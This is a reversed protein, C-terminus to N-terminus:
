WLNSSQTGCGSASTPVDDTSGATSTVASTYPLTISTANACNDNAPIVPCTKIYSMRTASTLAVCSFNTLLISYTGTTPCTWTIQSQLSCFDDSTALVTGGTGTSYLRLYTDATSLGCTSFTYICGATAAFNFARIGSNYSATNQSVTTVTIAVNTTAPSCYQAKGIYPLLVLFM